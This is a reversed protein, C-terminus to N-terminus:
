IDRLRKQEKSRRLSTQFGCGLGRSGAFSELEEVGVKWSKNEELYQKMRAIVTRYRVSWIQDEVEFHGQEGELSSHSNQRPTPPMIRRRSLPLAKVQSGDFRVEEQTVTWSHALKKSFSFPSRNWLSGVLAFRDVM